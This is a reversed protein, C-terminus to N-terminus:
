ISKVRIFGRNSTSTITPRPLQPISATAPRLPLNYSMPIYPWLSNSWITFLVSKFDLAFIYFINSIHLNQVISIHSFHSKQSFDDSPMRRLPCLLAYVSLVARPVRPSLVNRSTPFPPAPCLVNRPHLDALSPPYMFSIADSTPSFFFSFCVAAFICAFFFLLTHRSNLHGWFNFLFSKPNMVDSHREKKNEHACAHTNRIICYKMLIFKVLYQGTIVRLNGKM